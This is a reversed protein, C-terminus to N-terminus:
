IYYVTYTTHNVNMAGWANGSTFTLENDTDNYQIDGTGNQAGSYSGSNGLLFYIYKVSVNWFINTTLNWDAYGAGGVSLIVTPKTPFKIINTNQGKGKYTFSKVKVNGIANIVDDFKRELFDRYLEANAPAPTITGGLGNIIEDAKSDIFDRYLENM